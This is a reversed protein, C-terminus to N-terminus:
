HLGPVKEKATMAVEAATQTLQLAPVQDAPPLVEHKVQRAPEHDRALAEDQVDQLTPVQDAAVAAEEDLWHTLQLAPVQDVTVGAEATM